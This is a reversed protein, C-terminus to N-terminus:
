ASKGLDALDKALRESNKYFKVAKDLHVRALDLKNLSLALYGTDFSRVPSGPNGIGWVIGAPDDPLDALCLELASAESGYDSFWRCAHGKLQAIVDAICRELYTGNPDVYWIDRRELEPQAFSRSLSGRLHCEYEHPTAPGREPLPRDHTDPISSFKVGLNVSFSYTTMGIVGAMHSNFSQFNVVHVSKDDYRWANRASFKSFGQERLVPWIHSKIEGTVVKSDM